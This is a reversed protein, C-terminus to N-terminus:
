IKKVSGPPCIHLYPKHQCKWIQILVRCGDVFFYWFSWLSIVFVLIFYGCFSLSFSLYLCAKASLQNEFIKLIKKLTIVYCYHKFLNSQGFHKFVLYAHSSLSVACYQDILKAFLPPSKLSNTILQAHIQNLHHATKPKNLNLLSLCILRPLSSM